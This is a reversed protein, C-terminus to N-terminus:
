NELRNMLEVSNLMSLMGSSVFVVEVKDGQVKWKGYCETLVPTFGRCPQDTHMLNTMSNLSFYMVFVHTCRVPCWHASFYIAIVDAGALAEEPSHEDFDKDNKKLVKLDGNGGNFFAALSYNANQQPMQAM